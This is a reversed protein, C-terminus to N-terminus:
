IREEETRAPATGNKKRKEMISYKEEATCISTKKIDTIGVCIRLM